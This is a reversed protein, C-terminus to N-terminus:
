NNYYLNIIRFITFLNISLITVMFFITVKHFINCCYVLKNM